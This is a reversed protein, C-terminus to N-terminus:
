IRNKRTDLSRTKEEQGGVLESSERAPPTGTGPILASEQAVRRVQGMRLALDTAIDGGSRCARNIALRKPAKCARVSTSRSMWAPSTSAIRPSLPAPLDVKM